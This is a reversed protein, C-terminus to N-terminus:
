LDEEKKKKKPKEEKTKKAFEQANKQAKNKRKQINKM